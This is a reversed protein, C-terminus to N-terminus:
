CLLFFKEVDDITSFTIDTLKMENDFMMLRIMYGNTIVSRFKHYNLRVHYHFTYTSKVEIIINTDKIHIDPFYVHEKEDDDTYRFRPVNIGVIINDEHIKEKELLITIAQPEYGMVIIERKTEPLIIHKRRYVSAQIKAFIEPVKSVNDEGYLELCTKKCRYTKCNICLRGREVEHLVTEYEKGCRCILKLKEKNNSYQKTLLVIGKNEIRKKVDDYELRFKVNQCLHCVGTNKLMSPIFSNCTEGCSCCKYLVERSTNDLHIVTHGTKEEIEKIFLEISERKDNEKVCISCFDNMPFKKRLFLSKKNIYAGQCLEMSHNKSCNIIVSRSELPNAYYEDKTTVITYSYPELFKKINNYQTTM